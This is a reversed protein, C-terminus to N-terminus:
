EDAAMAKDAGTDKQIPAALVPPKDGAKAEEAVEVVTEGFSHVSDGTRSLVMPSNSGAAQPLM